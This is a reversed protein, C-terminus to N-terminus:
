LELYQNFLEDIKSQKLSDKEEELINKIQKTIKQIETSENPIPIPVSNLKTSNIGGQGGTTKFYDLSRQGYSSYLFGFLYMPDLKDSGPRIIFVHENVIAKDFPLRADCIIVKGTKAGDKCLLIDSPLIRASKKYAMYFDEPVYDKKQLNFTGDNGLQTGGISLVGEIL